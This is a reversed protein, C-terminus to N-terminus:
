FQVSDMAIVKALIARMSWVVLARREGDPALPWSRAPRPAEVGRSVAASANLRRFQFRRRMALRRRRQQAGASDELLQPGCRRSVIRRLPSQRPLASRIRDVDVAPLFQHECMLVQKQAALEQPRHKKRL